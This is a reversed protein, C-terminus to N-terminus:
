AADLDIYLTGVPGPHRARDPQIQVVGGLPPVEVPRTPGPALVPKPDPDQLVFLGHARVQDAMEPDFIRLFRLRGSQGESGTMMGLVQQVVPDQGIGFAQPVAGVPEAPERVPGDQSQVFGPLFAGIYDREFGNGPVGIRTLILCGVKRAHHVLVGEVAAEASRDAPGAIEALHNRVISDM